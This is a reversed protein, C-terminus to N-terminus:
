IHALGLNWNYLDGGSPDPSREEVEQLIGPSGIIRLGLILTVRRLAWPRCDFVVPPGEM